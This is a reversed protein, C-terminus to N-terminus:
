EEVHKSNQSTIHGVIIITEAATLKKCPQVVDDMALPRLGFSHVTSLSKLHVHDQVRENVSKFCINIVDLTHTRTVVSFFHM